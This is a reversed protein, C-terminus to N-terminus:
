SEFSKINTNLFSKIRVFVGLGKEVRKGTLGKEREGGLVKDDERWMM